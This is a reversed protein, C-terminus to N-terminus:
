TFQSRKVKIQFGTLSNVGVFNHLNTMKAWWLM